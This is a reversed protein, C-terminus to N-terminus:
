KRCDGGRTNVGDEHASYILILRSVPRRVDGARTRVIAVRVHGDPGPFLQAIVGRPWTGRPMSSDAIIVIDGEHLRKVNQHAGPRPLLSPRYERQWRRWFQDALTQATRWSSLSMTADTFVGLPSMASSRGILFHNPTLAEIDLDPNVPTLPRSNVIHESELLLTHLVEEHPAREKLVVKLATKVSGVLREWAGGASPNGPPIKKWKIARETLFPKLSDPLTNKAEALEREAGCFNTANDSYLVTPTGRRAIMRRLSLIMSSASLSAALELHVARTTLCTYLVGWRKERRRGITIQMPGFLDVAAATFPPQNAKLREPPLDGIPVKIPMGRYTRCWQCKNTIYRISGRLGIIYYRQKLENIVTAHNGHNYLAHFHQILLKVFDEKAHLVPMHTNKDIRTNLVIIGNKDLQVAIKYLPSKKLLPRGAELLRMEEPFAAHQSRRILLMEALDVHGKNIETDTKKAFLAAKFVEAAVLISATARVLRVFKSFRCVEPLYEFRNEAVGVSCVLKNVREEGTDAVPTPVKEIPWHESSKRIFDPGVFWRHNVGFQAPIGRTADDAVNAASPVWRWNAPTTTNEIEALRHAVFTKYRRPDARIWTLATKSDSWFFREKIVYDSEKVITEALRTALVCSQLEMRPISVVRLPSVRAKAAVLASTRTGEPNISVLYVAAAYIKESADCFVHMYAERNFAPVHRPIELDRLQQVNDIFSRWAPALSVPIPSDWDIGTRWIEQMLAKGLVSIPSVYGIPDFISMASSTVQRKTPLKQGNLVDEPTNRFNVNFGLTDRKHNWKLGLTRESENAGLLSTEQNSNVVDAIVAPHNSAFGRLEFSARMNLEYVENVVRRADEESTDLAILMDDMYTNKITKEAAIPFEKSHSKANENKVYLATTPSAASGFILRKMRYEQPQSTRDEGRWVFRLADRDQEIIEIQLFMEKVDAIVAIKGERFRVLVGFLSELLDPGALLASNLSRGYATAAADWVLRMKGRQPHFTPFHALYWARPAEPPPRSDMKEAYGKDLLNNMHKAYEAKLKADRDLKRELSYLRKLAQERNDPLKEDDSRWLLGSRYRQEGPIKECTAELLDLARQDPDARPLKQSVGLSEIDFHRKMLQLAEDDATNPRAHGVFQVAARRTRDPGHLVWGLRTLSAVPLNPPGDIIQRSIILHWNDQGIVITPVAPPYSLEDAIKSLHDCKDVLDRPVGQAGLGIDCVTYTEMLEMHRSCFGRIAVRLAYSDPDRVVGGIGEIELTEGRVRPAIRDATEHLMLTMAAGEDLLALTQVTGLPGSVEVPMIKLYTQPLKVNLVAKRAAPASNGNASGAASLGHLLRNHGAECQNMGCAVYKCGFFKRHNAGLCRFCLKAGKALDWRESVTAALFKSCEKVEHEKGNNCIACAERSFSVSSIQRKPKAGTSAPKKKLNGDRHKVQAVTSKNSRSRNGTDRTYSEHYDSESESSYDRLSAPARPGALAHSSRRPERVSSVANRENRSSDYTDRYFAPDRSRSLAQSSREPERASSVANVANRSRNSPKLRNIRKAATSIENLFESIAVLGPSEVNSQRYKAWEYRVILNLKDVIKNVLEPAHLYKEQRLSRITAVANAVHAAFSTINSNDESLRPMRKVNHIETLVIEEPDGFQRELAEMIEYPDQVTYMISKVATRAEGKLARRIRSVNNVASFMPSTDEFEARFSIWESIDGGFAPLEPPKHYMPAYTGHPVELTRPTPKSTREVAARPPPPATQKPPPIKVNEQAIEHQLRAQREVWSRTREEVTADSSGVSQAKLQAVQLRLNATESETKAVVLRAKHVELEAMLVALQKDRERVSKRSKHSDRNSPARSPSPPADADKNVLTGSRSRNVVTADLTESHVSENGGTTNPNGSTGKSWTNTEGSTTKGSSPTPTDMSAAPAPPGKTRPRLSRAEKESM